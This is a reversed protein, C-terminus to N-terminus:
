SRMRPESWPQSQFIKIKKLVSNLSKALNTTMHGWRKRDDWALTWQKRPIQDLWTTDHPNDEQLERYHHFFEPQTM